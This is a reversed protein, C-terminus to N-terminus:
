SSACPTEAGGLKMAIEEACGCTPAMKILEYGARDVLAGTKVIGGTSDKDICMASAFALPGSATGNTGLLEMGLQTSSIVQGQYVLSITPQARQWVTGGCTNGIGAAARAPDGCVGVDWDDSGPLPGGQPEHGGGAESCLVEGISPDADYLVCNGCLGEPSSYCYGRGTACNGICDVFGGGGAISVSSPMGYGRCLRNTASAAVQYAAASWDTIEIVESKYTAVESYADDPMCAGCESAFEGAVRACAARPAHLGGMSSQLWRMRAECTYGGAVTALVAASCTPAACAYADSASSWTAGGCAARGERVECAHYITQYYHQWGWGPWVGDAASLLRTTLDIKDVLVYQRASFSLRLGINAVANADWSLVLYARETLTTSNSTLLVGVAAGYM